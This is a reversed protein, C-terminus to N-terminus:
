KFIKGPNMIKKPDIMLKISRKLSLEQKSSYKELEKIKIKGIGHEASFSGGLKQVLSFVLNNIRAYMKKFENQNLKEPKGVNYHLNGDALHGFVLIYKKNIFNSLLKETKSLFDPIRDIPVSIDHKISLGEM